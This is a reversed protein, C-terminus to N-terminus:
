LPYKAQGRLGDLELQLSLETNRGYKYWCDLLFFIRTLNCMGTRGNGCLSVDGSRSNNRRTGGNRKERYSSFYSISLHCRCSSNPLSSKEPRINRSSTPCASPFFFCCCCCRPRSVLFTEKWTFSDIGPLLAQKSSQIHFTELLRAM